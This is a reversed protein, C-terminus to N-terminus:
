KDRTQQVKGLNNNMKTKNKHYNNKIEAKMNRNYKCNFQLTYRTKYFFFNLYFFVFNALFRVQLEM